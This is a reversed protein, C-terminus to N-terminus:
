SHTYLRKHLRADKHSTLLEIWIRGATVVREGLRVDKIDDGFLLTKLTTIEEHKETDQLDVEVADIFEFNTRLYVRQRKIKGDKDFELKMKNGDDDMFLGEKDGEKADKLAEPHEPADVNDCIKLLMEPAQFHPKDYSKHFVKRCYPCVGTWGVIMVHLDKYSSIMGTVKVIGTRSEAIPPQVRLAESVSL